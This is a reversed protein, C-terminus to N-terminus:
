RTNLGSRVTENDNPTEIEGSLAIQEAEDIVQTPIANAASVTVAGVSFQPIFSHIADNQGVVDLPKSMLTRLRETMRGVLQPQKIASIVVV